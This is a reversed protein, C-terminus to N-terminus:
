QSGAGYTRPNAGPIYYADVSLCGVVVVVVLVIIAHLSKM